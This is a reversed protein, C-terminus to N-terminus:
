SSSFKIMCFDIFLATNRLITRAPAFSRSFLRAFTSESLTNGTGSPSVPVFIDSVMCDATFSSEAAAVSKEDTHSRIELPASRPARPLEPTMREWIKRPIQETRAFQLDSASVRVNAFANSAPVLTAYLATEMGLSPVISVTTRMILSNATFDAPFNLSKSLKRGAIMASPSLASAM